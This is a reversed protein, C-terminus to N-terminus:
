QSIFPPLPKHGMPFQPPNETHSFLWPSLQEQKPWFPRPLVFFLLTYISIEGSKHRSPSLMPCLLRKSSSSSPMMSYYKNLETEKGRKNPDTFAMNHMRENSVKQCCLNSNRTGKGRQRAAASTCDKCTLRPSVLSYVRPEDWYNHASM